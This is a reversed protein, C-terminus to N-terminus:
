YHSGMLPWKFGIKVGRKECSIIQLALTHARLMIGRTCPTGSRKVNNKKILMSLWICMIELCPAFTPVFSVSM